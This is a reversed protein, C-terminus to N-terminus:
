NKTSRKRENYDIVDQECIALINWISLKSVENISGIGSRSLNSYVKLWGNKSSGGGSGSFLNPYSKEMSKRVGLYNLYIAYRENFPVEAILIARAPIESDFLEDRVDYRMEGAKKKPRYMAAIFSNLYSENQTQHYNSWHADIVPFEEGIINSLRDKPGYFTQRGIKLESIFWKKINMTGYIWSFTDEISMQQIRTLRAYLEMDIGSFAIGARMLLHKRSLKRSLMDGLYIFQKPTLEDFSAASHATVNGIQLTNM